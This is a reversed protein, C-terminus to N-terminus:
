GVFASSCGVPGVGQVEPLASSELISPVKANSWFASSQSGKSETFQVLIYINIKITIIVRGYYKIKIM